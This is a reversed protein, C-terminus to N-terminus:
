QEKDAQKRSKRKLYEKLEAIQEEHRKSKMEPFAKMLRRSIRNQGELMEEYKQKLEEIRRKTEEQKELSNMMNQYINEGIQDSLSHLEEAIEEMRDLRRNWKLIGAATVYIDVIMLICLVALNEGYPELMVVVATVGIGYIPCLPGNLFGRHDDRQYLYQSLEDLKERNELLIQAAKEHQKRVVEVVKEDIRKQEESRNM